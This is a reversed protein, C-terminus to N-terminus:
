VVKSIASFVYILILELLSFIKKPLFFFFCSPFYVVSVQREEDVNCYFLLLWYLTKNWLGHIGNVVDIVPLKLYIDKIDFINISKCRVFHSTLIYKFSVMVLNKRYKWFLVKKLVYQLDFIINVTSLSYERLVGKFNRDSFLTKCSWM